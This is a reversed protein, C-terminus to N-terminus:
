RVQGRLIYDALVANVDRSMKKDAFLIERKPLNGAGRQHWSAKQDKTGFEASTKDYDEIDMPRSVLTGRMEGTKILIEPSFGKRIKWARYEPKLPAWARGGAAGATAFQQTMADAIIDGVGPWAPTLDGAREGILRLRRVADDIGRQRMGM